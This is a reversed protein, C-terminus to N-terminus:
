SVCLNESNAKSYVRLTEHIHGVCGKKKTKCDGYM